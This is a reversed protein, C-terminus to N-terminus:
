AVHDLHAFPELLVAVVQAHRRGEGEHGARAPQSHLLANAEVALDGRREIWTRQGRADLLELAGAAGRDRDAVEMRIAIGAVLLRRSAGELPEHRADVDREGRLDEGLDLLVLAEAGGHDIGIDPGREADVEAPELAPEALGAVGAVDEDHLRVAAHRSDGVGYPQGGSGDERPRRPADRPAPM